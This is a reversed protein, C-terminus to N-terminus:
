ERFWGYYVYRYLPLVLYKENTTRKTKEVKVFEGTCLYLKNTNLIYYDFTYGDDRLYKHVKKKLEAVTGEAVVSYKQYGTPTIIEKICVAPGKKRNKLYWRTDFPGQGNVEKIVTNYIVAGVSGVSIVEGDGSGLRDLRSEVFKNLDKKAKKTDKGYEFYEGLYRFECSNEAGSYGEQTGYEEEALRQIEEIGRRWSTNVFSGSGSCAGM